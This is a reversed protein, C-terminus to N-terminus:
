HKGEQYSITITFKRDGRARITSLTSDVFRLIRKLNSDNVGATMSFSEVMEFTRNEELVKVVMIM